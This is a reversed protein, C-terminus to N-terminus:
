FSHIDGKEHPIIEHRGPGYKQVLGRVNILFGMGGDAVTQGDTQKPGFVAGMLLAQGAENRLFVQKFGFGAPAHESIWPFTFSFGLWSTEVLDVYGYFDMKPHAPDNGRTEMLPYELGFPTGNPFGQTPGAYVVDQANFLDTNLSLGAEAPANLTAAKIFVSGYNKVKYDYSKNIALRDGLVVTLGITKLDESADFYAKKFLGLKPKKCGMFSASLSLSLALLVLTSKKM